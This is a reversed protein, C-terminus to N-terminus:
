FIEKSENKSFYTLNYVINVEPVHLHLLAKQLFDNDPQLKLFYSKAFTYALQISEKM